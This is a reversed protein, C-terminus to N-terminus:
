TFVRSRGHLALIEEGVMASSSADALSNGKSAYWLLSLFEVSPPHLTRFMTNHTDSIRFRVSMVINTVGVGPAGCDHFSASWAAPNAADLHHEPLPLTKTSVTPTLASPVAAQSHWSHKVPGSQETEMGSQAASTSPNDEKRVNRFKSCRYNKNRDEQLSISVTHM